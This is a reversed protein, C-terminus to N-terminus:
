FLYLFLSPFFFFFFMSLNSIRAHDQRVLLIPLQSKGIKLTSTFNLHFVQQDNHKTPNVVLFTFLFSIHLLWEYYHQKIKCGEIDHIMTQKQLKQVGCLMTLKQLKQVNRNHFTANLIKSVPLFFFIIIFCIFLHLLFNPTM